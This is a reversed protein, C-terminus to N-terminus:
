PGAISLPPIEEPSGSEGTSAPRTTETPRGTSSPSPQGLPRGSVLPTAWAIIEQIEQISIDQDETDAQRAEMWAERDAPVLLKCMLGDMIQLAQDDPTEEGMNLYEIFVDPKCRAKIHWERGNMRFPHPHARGENVRKADIDLHPVESM